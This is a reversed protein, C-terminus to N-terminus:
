AKRQRHTKPEEFRKPRELLRNYQVDIAGVEVPRRGSAIQMLQEDSLTTINVNTEYNAYRVERWEDADANKLAFISVTADCMKEATLMKGELANVRAARAKEVADAFDPHKEIWGYVTEKGCGISGAFATLSRGKGMHDIVM